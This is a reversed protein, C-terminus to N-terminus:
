VALFLSSRIHINVEDVTICETMDWSAENGALVLCPSFHTLLQINIYPLAPTCYHQHSIERLCKLVTQQHPPFIIPRSILYTQRPVHLIM